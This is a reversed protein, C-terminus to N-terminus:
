IFYKRLEPRKKWDSSRAIKHVEVPLNPFLNLFYEQPDGVQYFAEPQPRPRPRDHWHQNVNRILRLCETWSSGYHFVKSKGNLFDTCLYRQIEASMLTRWDTTDVNVKKVVDSTGDKTKIEHQNGVTCLLEFQQKRPQLYPHKLAENASPRDEPDHSLMWGLLDNLLPDKVTELGVLKGDILNRLLDPEDGFPHKGKTVISFAVM